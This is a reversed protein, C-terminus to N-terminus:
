IIFHVMRYFSVLLSIFLATALNVIKQYFALDLPNIRRLARIEPAAM